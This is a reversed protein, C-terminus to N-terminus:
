NVKKFMDRTCVSNGSAQMFVPKQAMIIITPLTSRIKHPYKSWDYQYFEDSLEEFSTSVEQGYNCFLFILFISWFLRLISILLTTWNITEQSFIQFLTM